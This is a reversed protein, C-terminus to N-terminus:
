FWGNMAIRRLMRKVVNEIWVAWRDGRDRRWDWVLYLICLAFTTASIRLGLEFWEQPAYRIVITLNGTANIWFGNIVGYVPISRVKEVLVGDRYVRAEWLSDYAEAFVLMFPKEAVVEVRWLTPDVLEYGVVMAPVEKAEFLDEITRKDDLSNVSYIWVVDLYLSEYKCEKSRNTIPEIRIMHLGRELYIPELYQFDSKNSLVIYTKNDITIKANGRSRIAVMYYGPMIVEFRQWVYGGPDVCLLEGNSADFSEVAKANRYYFDDEGEFIYIVAKNQLTKEVIKKQAYYYKEPVLVLLNIANFGYINELVIEHKGKKLYVTGLEKWVFKNLQSKSNIIFMENNDIHMKFIGGKRNEFYRILLKYNGPKSVKFPIRLIVPKCYRTIDYIKVDKVWIINPLKEKTEHGHWIQIQIYSAGPNNVTYTFSVKEWNFTGTGIFKIYKGSLIKGNKDYEYVKVHVKWANKGKVYFGIFLAQGVKVPILPSRITKWGWTSNYLVVKLAEEKEDLLIEQLSNFQKEPTYDKWYELDKESDFKWEKILDKYSPHVSKPCNKAAWTFVLGYGYDSQWNEIGFKELYSHWAAFPPDSTSAKSWEKSPNHHIVTGALRILQVDKTKLAYTLLVDDLTEVLFLFNVYNGTSHNCSISPAIDSVSLPVIINDINRVDEIVPYYLASYARPDFDPTLFIIRPIFICNVSTSSVRIIKLIKDQHVIVTNNNLIRAVLKDNKSNGQVYVIHTIKFFERLYSSLHKINNKREIFYEYTVKYNGQPMVGPTMLYRYFSPPSFYRYYNSWAPKVITDQPIVLIRAKEARLIKRANELELKGTLDEPIFIQKRKDLNIYPHVFIVIEFLLLIVFASVLVYRLGKLISSGMIKNLIKSLSYSMLFAYALSLLYLFREPNYFIWVFKGLHFAYVYYPNNLGMAIAVSLIAILSFCVVLRDDKKYFLLASFSLIAFTISSVLWLIYLVHDINYYSLTHLTLDPLAWFKVLRIINLISGHSSLLSVIEYTTVYTPTAPEGKLVMLAAFPFIWYFNILVFILIPIFSYKIVRLFQSKTKSITLTLILCVYIFLHYLLPRANWCSICLLIAIIIAQSLYVTRRKSNLLINLLYSYTLYTFLPAVTYAIFIYLQPFRHFAFPNWIYFTSAIFAVLCSITKRHQKIIKNNFLYLALFTIIHGMVIALFLLFRSTYAGTPDFINIVKLLVFFPYRQIQQFSNSSTFPDWMYKYEEFLNEPKIFVPFDASIIAGKKFLLTGCFVMDFMIISLIFSFFVIKNVHNYLKSPMARLLM